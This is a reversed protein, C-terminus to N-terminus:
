YVYKRRNFSMTMCQHYAQFNLWSKELTALYSKSLRTWRYNKELLLCCICVKSWEEKRMKEDMQEIAQYSPLLYNCGGLSEPSCISFTTVAGGTALAFIPTAGDTLKRIEGMTDFGFNKLM